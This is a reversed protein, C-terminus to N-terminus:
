RGSIFDQVIRLFSWRSFHPLDLKQKPVEVYIFEETGVDYIYGEYPNITVKVDKIFEEYDPDFEIYLEGYEAYVRVNFTIPYADDPIFNTKFMVEVFGIEVKMMKGTLTVEEEFLTYEQEIEQDSADVTHLSSTTFLIFVLSLVLVVKLMMSKMKM